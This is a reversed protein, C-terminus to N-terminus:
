RPIFSFRSPLACRRGYGFIGLARPDQVDENITLNGSQTKKLFREPCFLRPEPYVKPDNM